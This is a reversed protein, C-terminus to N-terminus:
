GGSGDRGVAIATCSIGTRAVPPPPAVVRGAVVVIVVVIAVVGVAPACVGAM